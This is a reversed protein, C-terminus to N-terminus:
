PKTSSKASTQCEPEFRVSADAANITYSIQVQPSASQNLDFGFAAREAETELQLLRFADEIQEKSLASTTDM